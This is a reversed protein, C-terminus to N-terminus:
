SSAHFRDLRGEFSRMSSAVALAVLSRRSPPSLPVLPPRSRNARPLVSRTDRRRAASTFTPTTFRAGDGTESADLPGSGRPTRERELLCHLYAARRRTPSCSACAEPRPGAEPLEREGRLPFPSLFAPCAAGSFPRRVLARSEPTKSHMRRDFRMKPRSAQAIGDGPCARGLELSRSQWATVAHRIPIALSPTRSRPRAERLWLFTL